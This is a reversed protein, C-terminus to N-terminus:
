QKRRNERASVIRETVRLHFQTHVRALKLLHTAKLKGLPPNDIRGTLEAIAEARQALSTMQKKTEEFIARVEERMVEPPPELEPPAKAVGRPFAGLTLVLLAGFSARGRQIIAPDRDRYLTEIKEFSGRNTLGIHYIEQAPSWLSVREEVAYFQDDPLGLIRGFAAYAKGLLLFERKPLIPFM